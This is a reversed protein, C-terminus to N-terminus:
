ENLMCYLFLAPSFHDRHNVFVSKKEEKWTAENVIPGVTDLPIGNEDIADEVLGRYSDFYYIKVVHFFSKQSM